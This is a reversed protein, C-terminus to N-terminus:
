IVELTKIITQKSNYKPKWGIDSIKKIDLNMKIIDGLWGRETGTYRIKANPSIKQIVMEAIEKITIADGSSVNYIGPNMKSLMAEVLDDVFIFSKSQEGTGLVELENPNKKLKNIFDYVVGHTLNPGIVNGFRFIWANLSLINSFTNIYTECTLKSAGYLSITSLKYNEPTPFINPEGYVVSSSAFVINKIKNLRMSELVNYTGIVNQNLDLDTEKMGKRIDPNAALHFIFKHNQMCCKLLPLCLIDGEIFRIQKNDPIFEKKGSSLNDYITIKNAPNQELIKKVLISGISGAGGTIFYDGGPNDKIARLIVRVFGYTNSNYIEQKEMHFNAKIGYSKHIHYHKGNSCFYGFSEENFFHYHQPDAFALRNNQHPVNILVKAGPKCVRWIENMFHITDKIHEMFNWARIEDVTNDDFPIGKELDHVIHPNNEKSIDINTWGNIKDTGSGLNLKLTM